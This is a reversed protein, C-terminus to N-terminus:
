LSFVPGQLSARFSGSVPGLRSPARGSGVLDVIRASTIWNRMAALYADGLGGLDPSPRPILVQAALRPNAATAFGKQFGEYVTGLGASSVSTRQASSAARLERGTATMGQSEVLLALAELLEPISQVITVALSGCAAIACALVYAPATAAYAAIANLIATLIAERNWHALALNGGLLLPWHFNKPPGAATDPVSGSRATFSPFANPIVASYGGAWSEWPVWFARGVASAIETGAGAASLAATIRGEFSPGSVGGRMLNAVPGHVSGSVQSEAIWNRVGQQLAARAAPIWANWDQPPLSSPRYAAPSNTGAVIPM